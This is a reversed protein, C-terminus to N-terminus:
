RGPRWAMDDTGPGTSVAQIPVGVEDEIKACLDLLGQPLDEWRSTPGFGEWGPIEELVPVAAGWVETEEPVTRWRRGDWDWATAVKLSGMGGLVDAKTLILGTFGCLRHAYRLLVLDLWGCQRPRGTTAGFENGAQQVRVGWAADMASPFPGEGVRTLYAKAIGLVRDFRPPLGTNIAASGAVTHSSTVFPYTGFGVDLLVGQASELLVEEGAAVAGHIVEMTDGVYPAVRERLALLDQRLRHPDIRRKTERAYVGALVGNAREVLQGLREELHDSWLDGLRIARRAIRDASAPGIGRFTTGLKKHGRRLEELKDFWRHHPLVLCAERSIVLDLPGNAAAVQDIEQLLLELDLAVGRAIVNKVGPSLVGVPLLHLSFAKGDRYITHGANAGGQFRVVVQSTRALHDVVKGKGEDGWQAGVVVTVGM